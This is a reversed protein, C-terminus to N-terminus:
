HLVNQNLCRSRPHLPRPRLPLFTGVRHPWVCPKRNQIERPIGDPASTYSSAENGFYHCCSGQSQGVTKTTSAAQSGRLVLSQRFSEFDGVRKLRSKDTQWAISIIANQSTVTNEKTVPPLKERILSVIKALHTKDTKSKRSASSLLVDQVKGLYSKEGEPVNIGIELSEKVSRGLRGLKKRVEETFTDDFEKQPKKM